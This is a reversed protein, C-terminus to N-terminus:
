HRTAVRKLFEEFKDSRVLNRGCDRAGTIHAILKGEEDTSFAATIPWHACATKDTIFNHFTDDDIVLKIFDTGADEPLHFQVITVGNRLRSNLAALAGQTQKLSENAPVFQLVMPAEPHRTGISQLLELFQEASKETNTFRGDNPIINIASNLKLPFLTNTRKVIEDHTLFGNGGILTFSPNANADGISDEFCLYSQSRNSLIMGNELEEVSHVLTNELASGNKAILRYTNAPKGIPALEVINADVYQREESLFHLVENPGVKTSSEAVIELILQIYPSVVYESMGNKYHLAVLSRKQEYASVAYLIDESIEGDMKGTVEDYGYPRNLLLPSYFIAGRDESIIEPGIILAFLSQKTTERVIYDRVQKMSPVSLAGDM